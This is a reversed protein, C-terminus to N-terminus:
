GLKFGLAFGTVFGGGFPLNATLIGWLRDALTVGHPDTWMQQATHQVGSWNVTILDNYALVQLLIFLLGLVVAVVKTVKKAAYGVVLGAAGGFGLAALPAGFLDSLDIGGGGVLQMARLMGGYACITSADAVASDQGLAVHLRIWRSAIQNRCEPIERMHTFALRPNGPVSM